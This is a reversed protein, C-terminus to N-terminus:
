NQYTPAPKIFTFSTSNYYGQICPFGNVNDMRVWSNTNITRVYYNVFLDGYWVQGSSYYVAAPSHITTDTVGEVKCSATTTAGVFQYVYGLSDVLTEGDKSIQTGDPSAASNPTSVAATIWPGNAFPTSILGNSDVSAIQFDYPTAPTLGTFTYTTDNVAVWKTFNTWGSVRWSVLYTYPGGSTPADWTITM